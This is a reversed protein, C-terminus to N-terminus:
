CFILDIGILQSVHLELDPYRVKLIEQLDKNDLPPVM